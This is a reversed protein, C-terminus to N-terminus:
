GGIASNAGYQWARWMMSIGSLILVGLVLRYFVTEEVHKRVARGAALGVVLPIVALASLIALKRDMVGVFILMAVWPVVAGIYLFSITNVFRNKELTSLSVLYLILMPGFLSSLGGVVGATGCFVAGAPKELRAPITIKRPSGQLITFAIVLIGVLLLLTKEDTGSLIKVGAWTGVVLAVFAPWFRTVTEVPKEADYVQWVNAVVVPFAMMVITHHVPLVLAMMPVTLLPTGIGLVGKIFGGCAMAFACWAVVWPALEFIM